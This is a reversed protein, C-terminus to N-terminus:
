RTCNFLKVLFQMHTYFVDILTNGSILRDFRLGVVVPANPAHTIIVTNPRTDDERHGRPGESLSISPRIRKYM